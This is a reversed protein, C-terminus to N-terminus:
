DVVTLYSRLRWHPQRISLWHFFSDPKTELPDFGDQLLDRFALSRGFGAGDGVLRADISAHIARIGTHIACLSPHITCFSAHVLAHATELFQDLDPHFFQARQTTQVTFTLNLDVSQNVSLLASLGAQSSKDFGQPAASVAM